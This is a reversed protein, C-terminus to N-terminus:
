PKFIGIFRPLAALEAQAAAGLADMPHQVIYQGVTAMGTASLDARAVDRAIEQGEAVIVGSLYLPGSAIGGSKLVSATVSAAADTIQAPDGSTFGRAADFAALYTGAGTLGVVDGLKWGVGPLTVKETGDVLGSLSLSGGGALAGHSSMGGTAPSGGTSDSAGRQESANNLASQGLGRIQDQVQQLSSKHQPWWTGVFETSDRGDWVGALRRVTADIKSTLATLADADTQLGHGIREVSDVDMGLRTM